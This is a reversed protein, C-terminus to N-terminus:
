INEEIYRGLEEIDIELQDETSLNKLSVVNRKIENDGIIILHTAGAGLASNLAKKFNRGTTEIICRANKSRVEDAIGPAKL